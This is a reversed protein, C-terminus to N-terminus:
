SFVQAKCGPCPPPGLTAGSEGQRRNVVEHSDAGIIAPTCTMLIFIATPRFQREADLITQKLKEEGGGIVDSETLNTSFWRAGSMKVGRATGYAKVSFDIIHSSSGCGVPGHMIVVSDKVSFSILTSVMMQCGAGQTFTRDCNILCGKQACSTMDRTCGGFAFGTRRSVERTQPEKANFNVELIPTSM